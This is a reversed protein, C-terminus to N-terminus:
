NLITILRFCLAPHKNIINEINSRESLNEECISIWSTDFPVM